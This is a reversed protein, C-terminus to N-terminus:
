SFCPIPSDQAGVATYGTSGEIYTVDPKGTNGATVRLYLIQSNTVVERLTNNPLKTYYTNACFCFM